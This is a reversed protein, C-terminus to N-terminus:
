SGHGHFGGECGQEAEGQEEGGGGGLVSFDAEFGLDEGDHLLTTELTVLFFVGIVGAADFLGFAFEAHVIRLEHEFAAGFTAVEGRSFGFFAGDVGGGEKRVVVVQGHGGFAVAEGVFLFVEDFLPDGLTSFESGPFAGFFLRWGCDWKMVRCPAGERGHKKREELKRVGSIRKVFGM